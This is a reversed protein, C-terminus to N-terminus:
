CAWICSAFANCFLCFDIADSGRYSLYRIDWNEADMKMEQSNKGNMGLRQLKTKRGQEVFLVRDHAVVVCKLAPHPEVRGGHLAFHFKLGEVWFRPFFSIHIDFDGMAADATGVQM